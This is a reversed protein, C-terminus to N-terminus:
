PLTEIEPKNMKQEFGSLRYCNYVLMLDVFLRCNAHYLICTEIIVFMENRPITGRKIAIPLYFM